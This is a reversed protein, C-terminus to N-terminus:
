VGIEWHNRSLCHGLFSRYRMYSRKLTREALAWCMGWRWPTVVFATLCAMLRVSSQQSIVNKGVSRWSSSPNRRTVWKWTTRRSFITQWPSKQDMQTKLSSQSPTRTLSWMQFLTPRRTVGILLSVIINSNGSSRVRPARLRNVSRMFERCVPSQQCSSTWM